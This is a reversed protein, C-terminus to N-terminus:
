LNLGLVVWPEGVKHARVFGAGQRLRFLDSGTSFREVRRFMSVYKYWYASSREPVLVCCSFDRLINAQNLVFKLVIGIMDVPPFLWVKQGDLNAEFVPESPCCFHKLLANHGDDAVMGDLTFPGVRKSIAGFLRKRM